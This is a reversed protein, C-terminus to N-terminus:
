RPLLSLDDGHKELMAVLRTNQERLEGIERRKRALNVRHKAERAFELLIGAVLGTLAALIIVVSLPVTVQLLDIGFAEPMIRLSVPAMNAAVAIMLVIALISVIVLKLTRM